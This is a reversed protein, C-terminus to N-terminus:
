VRSHQVLKPPGRPKKNRQPSLVRCCSQTLMFWGSGLILFYLYLRDQLGRGIEKCRLKRRRLKFLRYGAEIHVLLILQQVRTCHVAGQVLVAKHTVAGASLVTSYETAGGQASDLYSVHKIHRIKGKHVKCNGISKYYTKYNPLAPRKHWGCQLPQMPGSVERLYGKLWGGEAQGQLPDAWMFFIVCPVMYIMPAYIALLSRTMLSISRM